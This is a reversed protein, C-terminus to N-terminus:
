YRPAAGSASEEEGAKGSSTSSLPQVCLAKRSAPERVGKDEGSATKPASEDDVDVQM